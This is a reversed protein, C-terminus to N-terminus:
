YWNHELWYSYGVSPIRYRNKIYDKMWEAQCRINDLSGCRNLLKSCPLSQAYGCAGSTSNVAHPNWRSEKQIIFDVFWWESEGFEADFM